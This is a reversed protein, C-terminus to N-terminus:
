KARRDRGKKTVLRRIDAFAEPIIVTGLFASLVGTLAVTYGNQVGAYIAFCGGAIFLVVQLAKM